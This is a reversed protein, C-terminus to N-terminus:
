KGRSFRHSFRRSFRRGVLIRFGLLCAAVLTAQAQMVEYLRDRGTLRGQMVVFTTRCDESSIQKQVDASVVFKLVVKMVVDSKGSGDPEVRTLM